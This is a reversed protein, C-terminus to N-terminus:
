LAMWLETPSFSPYIHTLWPGARSSGGHRSPDGYFAAGSSSCRPALGGGRGDGSPHGGLWRYTTLEFAAAAQAFTPFPLLGEAGPARALHLAYASGEVAGIRLNLRSIDGMERAPSEAHVLYCGEIRIYPHTFSVAKARAPDVALFCVDWVDSGASAAVDVARDFEVFVPAVGLRAGLAHALDVSIGQARGAEDRGVLVRNGHNLAVRLAGSPALERLIEPDAGMNVGESPAGTKDEAGTM